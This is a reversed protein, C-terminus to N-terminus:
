RYSIAVKNENKSPPLSSPKSDPGTNFIFKQNLFSDTHGRSSKTEKRVNVKRTKLKVDMKVAVSIYLTLNKKLKSNWM